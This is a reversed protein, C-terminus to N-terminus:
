CLYYFPLKEMCKRKLSPNCLSSYWISVYLVLWTCVQVQKCVSQVKWPQLPWAKLNIRRKQFGFHRIEKVTKYNKELLQLQYSSEKSLLFFFSFLIALLNDAIEKEVTCSYSQMLRLKRTLLVFHNFPLM